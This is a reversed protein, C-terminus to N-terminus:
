HSLAEVLQKSITNMLVLWATGVFPSLLLLISYMEVRSFLPKKDSPKKKKVEEEEKRRDREMKKLWKYAQKFEDANQPPGPTFGPNCYFPPLPGGWYPNYMKKEM